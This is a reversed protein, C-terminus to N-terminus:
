NSRNTLLANEVLYDHIVETLIRNGSTNLHFDLAYYVTEGNAIAERFAPLMDICHWDNASCLDLMRRRSEGISELYLADLVANLPEAYAEEKTPILVLLMEANLEDQIYAAAEEHIAANREWGYQVAAYDPSFPHTYEGTVLLMERGNVDVTQYHQYGADDETPAMWAEVLAAVTSYQALGDLDAVPEPAPPLELAPTEDNLTALLYDDQLDNPYWQWIVVAPDLPEIIDRMLAYQGISGTGPQGANVVNWGFQELNQVWCNSMETWCFTFSDGFALIDLPWTPGDTRLGISHGDWVTGTDFTFRADYWRVPQDTLGPELRSQFKRDTIFPVPPVIREEDWPVVRVAQINGQVDAPLADFGTRMFIEAILLAFVVSLVTMLLTGFVAVLPSTPTEEDTPTQSQETM